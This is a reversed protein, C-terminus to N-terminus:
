RLKLGVPLAYELALGGSISVAVYWFGNIFFWTCDDRDELDVQLLMVGLSMTAGGVSVLFYWIRLDALVGCMTLSVAIFVLLVWLLAYLREGFAVAVSGVGNKVDDDRDLRAYVSDYVVTWLVCAVFLSVLAWDFGDADFVRMGMSLAGVVVGWALCFGLVVQPYNSCRKVFPYGASGLISPVM